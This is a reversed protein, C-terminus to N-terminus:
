LRRDRDGRDPYLGLALTCATVGSGCTTAVPKKIDVGAQEFAARLEDASRYTGDKNLLNPFPVNCSGPIHGGRM